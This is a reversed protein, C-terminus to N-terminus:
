PSVDFAYCERACDSLDPKKKLFLVISTFRVGRDEVALMPARFFEGHLITPNMRMTPRVAFTPLHILKLGYIEQAWEVANRHMLELQEPFVRLDKLAARWDAAAYIAEHKFFLEHPKYKVDAFHDFLFLARSKM